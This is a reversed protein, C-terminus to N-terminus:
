RENKRLRKELKGVFYSLIMVMVLYIAAVTLLPIYYSYTVGAIVNGAKTIDIVGVYGVVSTEKLLAIFENCLTPLVSKFMQPVVIYRMTQFYNFGLSRGAEFQGNDISMIGARFIEAVYAGSNIGFALMGVPVGDKASVFVIFYAIMLQVVVPTGRIITLYVRCIANLVALIYYGIGGRMKLSEKNKDFSSRISAIVVGIVIGIVLAGATILLTNKLGTLM